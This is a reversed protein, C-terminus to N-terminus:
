RACRRACRGPCSPMSACTRAARGNTPWRRRSRPSRRGQGGRLRGLVRASGRRAHRAHLRRERRAGRALLPLMARTLAMAAAVNVRLVKQWADFSQHEIPGLSGLFAATHVLGDLRGLQARLASAVNGFDDARRRPSISRCSRRSRIGPPSSRTTSRRSSACSAGTCCSRRAARRARSRSRRASGAPRAPSSSRRPRVSRRRVRSRASPLPMRAASPARSARRPAARARHYGVLPTARPRGAARARPKGSRPGPGYLKLNATPTYSLQSLAQM